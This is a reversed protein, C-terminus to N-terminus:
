VAFSRRQAFFGRTTGADAAGFSGSKLLRRNEECASIFSQFRDTSNRNACVEDDFHIFQYLREVRSANAIQECTSLRISIM